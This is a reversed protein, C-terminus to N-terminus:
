AIEVHLAGDDREGFAIQSLGRTPRVRGTALDVIDDRLNASVQAITRKCIRGDNWSGRAIVLSNVIQFVENSRFERDHFRLAIDFFRAQKYVASERQAADARDHGPREAASCKRAALANNHLRLIKGPPDSRNLIMSLVDIKGPRSHAGRDVQGVGRDAHTTCADFTAVYNRNGIQPRWARGEINKELSRRTQAQTLARTSGAREFISGGNVKMVASRPDRRFDGEEVLMSEGTAFFRNRLQAQLRWHRREEAIAKNNAIRGLSECNGTADHEVGVSVAPIEAVGRFEREEGRARGGRVIDIKANSGLQGM